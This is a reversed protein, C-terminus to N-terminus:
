YRRQINSISVSQHKATFGNKREMAKDIGIGDDEITCILQDDKKRFSVNINISQHHDSVGHWIANEIFPQILMPPILTDDLDLSPDIETKFNFGSKRIQEMEVYATLYEITQRLSIFTARSQDLTMRILHAFDSLYRSAEKVDQQLVMEKISNLSNFIFHPNMQAHLAKMEAVAIQNDLNAKERIRHERIRFVLYIIGSFLLLVVPLFWAQKWFPQQISFNFHTVKQKGSKGTARILLQHAGPQLDTLHIVRQSAISTWEKADDLNYAFQYDNSQEYDIITYYVSLTNEGPKLQINNGPYYIKQQNNIELEQVIIDNGENGPSPRELPFRIIENKYFGYMRKSEEDFYMSRATSIEEPLDSENGFIEIGYNRTDMRVLHHPTMMFLYNDIVPSLALITNTPLGDKMTFQKYTKNAIQYQLLGNEANHLWLSGSKDAVMTLIDDNYKHSGGYVKILTDFRMEEHDWRALSHGGIWMDDYSDCALHKIMVFPIPPDTHQSITHLKRKQVEYRGISGELQSLMWATGKKDPPSLITYDLNGNLEVKGFTWSDTNFWMMEEATGMWITDRHYMEMSYIVNSKDAGLDFEKIVKMSAPDVAVLGSKPNQRSLYLISDHIIADTFGYSRDSPDPWKFKEILPANITQRLM